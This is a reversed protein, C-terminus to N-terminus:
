FTELLQALKLKGQPSIGNAVAKKLEHQIATKMEGEADIGLGLWGANNEDYSENELAIYQHFFGHHMMIRAVTGKPNGQPNANESMDICSGLKRVAAALLERTNIELLELAPRGPIPEPVDTTAVYWVLNLLQLYSGHRIFLEVNCIM